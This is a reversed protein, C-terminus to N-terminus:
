RALVCAMQREDPEGGLERSRNRHRNASAFDDLRRATQAAQLHAEADDDEHRLHETLLRDALALDRDALANRIASKRASKRVQKSFLWGAPILLGLGLLIVLGTRVRRSM